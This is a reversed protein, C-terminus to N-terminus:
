EDTSYKSGESMYTDHRRPAPGLGQGQQLGVMGAVDVDSDRLQGYQGYGGPAPQGADMEPLTGPGANLPPPSEARALNADPNYPEYNNVAASSPNTSPNTNYEQGYSDNSPRRGYAAGAAAGAYMPPPSRGGRMPGGPGYNGRPPPGYGGRGGRPGYGGRGQPGYGGRGRNPAGYGGRANYPGGRGRHFAGSMDGRGRSQSRDFSPDRALGYADPQGNSPNGYRDRSPSRSGYARAAAAGGMAGAATLDNPGQTPSRQTLPVREDSVQDDKKVQEFSAFAPLNDKGSQNAGSVLPISPQNAIGIDVNPKGNAERNYYNEGSMEANEEIKKRRAKRSTMSRRMACTVVGSFAVLITAALVVYTGWAMHPMFLLIDILFALLCVLFTIVLLIFFVLLYRASHSPAHFHATVAM